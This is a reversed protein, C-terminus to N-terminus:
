DGLVEGGFEEGHDLTGDGDGGSEEGLFVVVDDMCAAGGSGLKDGECGCFVGTYYIGRTGVGFKFEVGM